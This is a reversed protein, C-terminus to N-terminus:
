NEKRERGALEDLTVNLFDAIESALDFSISKTGHEVRSIFQQSVGIHQAIDEQTINKAKRIDELCTKM